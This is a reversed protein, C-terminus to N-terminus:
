ATAYRNYGPIQQRKFVGGGYMALDLLVALGLWLWDFGYVGSPEVVVYMLTTSPFFICGLAPWIFTNFADDWRGPELLWWVVIAARPGLYALVLLICCV